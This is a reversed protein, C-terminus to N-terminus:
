VERNTPLTLHTYSVPIIDRTEDSLKETSVNDVTQLLKDHYAKLKVHMSETETIQNNKLPPYKKYLDKISSFQKSTNEDKVSCKNSSHTSRDVTTTEESVSQKRTTSMNKATAVRKHMKSMHIRMGNHTKFERSCISCCFQENIVANVFVARTETVDDASSNPVHNDASNSLGQDQDVTSSNVM